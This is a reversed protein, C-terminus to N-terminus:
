AAAEHVTITYSDDSADMIAVVFGSLSAVAPGLDVEADHGVNFIFVGKEGSTVSVSDVGPLQGIAGKFASIAAVSALGNVMLQSSRSSNTPEPPAVAGLRAALVAAPWENSQALDLGETAEAEAEAAAAAELASPDPATESSGPVPTEVTLDPPEPAREALTALRAPDKEALLQEFFTAMEAEFASVTAQVAGVRREVEEEHRKTEHVAESKRAEIREETQQRIRAMEAKSWDRIGAIDDEVQKRIAAAEETSASRIEETRATAEAQLRTTTEERSAIAAERMAKVLGAVLPNERRGAPPETAVRIPPRAVEQPAKDSPKGDASQDGTTTAGSLSDLAALSGSDAPAGFDTRPVADGEETSPARDSSPWSAGWTAEEPRAGKASPASPTETDFMEAEATGEPVDSAAPVADMSEDENEPAPGAEGHPLLDRAPADGEATQVSGDPDRDAAWPLRFGRKQNSM